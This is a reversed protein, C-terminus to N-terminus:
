HHSLSRLASPSIPFMLFRVSCNMVKKFSASSSSSLSSSSSSISSQSGSLSQIGHREHHLLCMYLLWGIDPRLMPIETCHLLMMWMLDTYSPVFVLEM